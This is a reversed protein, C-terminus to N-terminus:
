VFAPRRSRLSDADKNDPSCLQTKLLDSLTEGKLRSRWDSKVQNMVSFGRECDATTATITLLADFLDLVKQLTGDTDTSAHIDSQM